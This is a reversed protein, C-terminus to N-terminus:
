EENGDAEPKGANWDRYVQGTPILRGIIVNEKLGQLTDIRRTTSAEVLVRITEQFSAGALWSDTALAARTIGLLLHEYTAPKQNSRLKANENHVDGIDATEGPLFTTKGSDLIRVKSFMKRVIIELHKDNITQGQSSYIHQVEHIIYRQVAYIGKKELLEQINFHGVNLPQGVEVIDGTKVLFSERSNFEYMREQIEDHKVRVFGDDVSSVKGAITVKITSKDMSAKALITREKVIDGKKVQVEFGVPMRYVDEGRENAVIHILTKGSPHTVKVKGAIDSLIAPTRPSRAEFLEEVRTLGQTIDAGEAVGGMHFTRMTLQTGPEGISQAAIIGVPTGLQVTENDGLDRGYCRM